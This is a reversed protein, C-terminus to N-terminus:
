LKARPILVQPDTWLDGVGQLDVIMRKGGTMVYTFHSFAHPTMRYHAEEIFGNNSNHKEYHGEIFKEACFLPSRLSPGDM